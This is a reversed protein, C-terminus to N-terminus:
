KLGIAKECEVMISHLEALRATATHPNAIDIGNKWWRALLPESKPNSNDIDYIAYCLYM